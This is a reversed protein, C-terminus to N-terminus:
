EVARWMAEVEDMSQAVTERFIVEDVVLTRPESTIGNSSSQPIFTILYQDDGHGEVTMRDCDYVEDQACSNETHLVFRTKSNFTGEEVKSEFNYLGKEMITAIKRMEVTNM